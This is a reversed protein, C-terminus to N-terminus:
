IVNIKYICAREDARPCGISINWVSAGIKVIPSCKLPFGIRKDHTNEKTASTASYFIKKFYFYRSFFSQFKFDESNVSQIKVTPPIYCM